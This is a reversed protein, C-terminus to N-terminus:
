EVKEETTISRLLIAMTSPKVRGHIEDDIVVVPAQSCAGVCRCEEVTITWDDNTEGPGIGILQKIKEILQSAGGVYCATGLCIKITHKGRPQTTFFSYFSIVGHIKSVPTHLYDAVYQQLDESVFGVTNQLENLIVMISGPKDMNKELIADIEAKAKEDQLPNFLVTNSKVTEM